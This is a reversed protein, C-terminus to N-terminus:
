ANIQENGTSRDEKARNEKTAAKRGYRGTGM